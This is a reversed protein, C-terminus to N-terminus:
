SASAKRGATARVIRRFRFPCSAGGSGITTPREFEFGDRDPDIADIWNSDFACFVGTLNAAGNAKLVEHYFCRRVEATYRSEDDEPHGFVFGAGFAQEERERTLKVMAVFPDGAGDLLSRTAERVFREMPQVFAERLATILDDGTREHALEQYAALVALTMSLNHLSAEDVVRHQQAAVLRRHRGRLRGVLDPADAFRAALAGFFAAVVMAAQAEADM